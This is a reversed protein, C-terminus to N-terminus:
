RRFKLDPKVVQRPAWNPPGIRRHLRLTTRTRGGTYGRGRGPPPMEEISLWTSPNISLNTGDARCIKLVGGDVIELREDDTFNLPPESPRLVNFAMDSLTARAFQSRSDPLEDIWAASPRRTKKSASWTAYRSWCAFNPTSSRSKACPRFRLPRGIARLGNRFLGLRPRITGARRPTPNLQGGSRNPWTMQRGPTAVGRM